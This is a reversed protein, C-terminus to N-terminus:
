RSDSQALLGRVVHLAGDRLRAVAVPQEAEDCVLVPEIRAQPDGPAGRLVHELAIRRGHRADAIGAADLTACPVHGLAKRIPIVREALACRAPEDGAAAARLQEISVCDQVAVSGSQTRRLGRLHGVTGLARALDRAFSRVYFGKGCHIRLAIRGEGVPGVDIGHVVVERVPASVAEGRRVRVHLAVGGQKLASV